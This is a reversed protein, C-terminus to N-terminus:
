PTVDIFVPSTLAEKGDQLLINAAYWVNEEPCNLSFNLDTAQTPLDLVKERIIIGGKTIIKISCIRQKEDKVTIKFNIPEKKNLKIAEGMICDNISFHIKLTKSESSYTHRKYYAELLNNTTLKSVLVATVNESDGWNKRHNDQGNVAGLKWGLDLMHFYQKYYRKYRHPYSGNGVEICRIYKNLEFYNKIKNISEGPHNIVGIGKSEKLWEVFEKISLKNAIYNDTGIVNIDLSPFLKYELGLLPRFSKHHKQYNGVAERQLQWSTKEDRHVKRLHLNHDTFIIYDLNNKKSLQIAETITGKGTSFSTHCHPIGYYIKYKANSSNLRKKKSSGV